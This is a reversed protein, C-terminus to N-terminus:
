KALNLCLEIECFFLFCFCVNVQTATNGYKTSSDEEDGRAASQGSQRDAVLQPRSEAAGPVAAPPESERGPSAGTQARLDRRTLTGGDLIRWSILELSQKHIRINVWINHYDPSYFNHRPHDVCSEIREHGDFFFIFVM